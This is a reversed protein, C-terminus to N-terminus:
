RSDRFAFPLLYLAFAHTLPYGNLLDIQFPIGKMNLNLFVGKAQSETGTRVETETSDVPSYRQDDLSGCRYKGKVDIVNGM